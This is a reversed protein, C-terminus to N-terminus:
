KAKLTTVDKQSLSGIRVLERFHDNRQVLDSFSGIDGIQGNELFVIQDADKVTSLRHAVIIITREGALSLITESIEHETINDLASTAEDLILVDPERYIARAIGVRQRQGGSLRVGREGLRTDLGNPLSLVVEDLKAMTVAKALREEDVESTELGYAINMKLSEDMVYIDQSVVAVRDYWDGLSSRIDRGGYTISGVTPEFLGLLIDLLTSKGAGSTGVFAVTSGPKIQLNIGNLTKQNSDDFKFELDKIEIPQNRSFPTSSALQVTGDNRLSEVEEALIRLGVRGVRISGLGSIFRNLTPLLRTAAAVFVGLISIANERPLTAFLLVATSGIGVVFSIDMIHRPLESIVALSRKAQAQASRAVFFKDVFLPASKTVRSDRFGNIGPLVANWAGMENEAIREGVIRQPRRLCLQLVWSIGGFFVILWLTAGPSIVILVGAVLLLTLFDTLLNILGLGVQSFAQSVAHGINRHMESLQRTRHRIYPSSSYLELLSTAAEAELRSTYGSIWWRFLIQVVSKVIFASAVLGATALLLAQFDNTGLLDAIYRVVTNDTSGTVILMLPLMSAVGLMDLGAVFLSGFVAPVLWALSQNRLLSLSIKLDSLM